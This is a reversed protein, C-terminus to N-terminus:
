YRVVRHQIDSYSERQQAIKRRPVAFLLNKRQDIQWQVDLAFRKPNGGESLARRAAEFRQVLVSYARPKVVYAACARTGNAIALRGSIPWPVSYLTPALNLVDLRGDSLFEFVTMELESRSCLFEIDDEFVILPNDGGLNAARLVDIHSDLVGIEGMPRFYGPVRSVDSLGLRTVEHQFQERRDVRYDLNIYKASPLNRLPYVNGGPSERKKLLLSFLFYADAPFRLVARIPRIARFFSETLRRVTTTVGM